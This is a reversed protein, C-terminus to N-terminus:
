NALMLMQRREMYLEVAGKVSAAHRCALTQLLLVCYENPM